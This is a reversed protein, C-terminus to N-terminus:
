LHFPLVQGMGMSTKQGIGSFFALESLHLIKDREALPLHSIDFEVKGTFGRLFINEKLLFAKSEIKYKSVQIGSMTKEELSIPEEIWKEWKRVLSKFVSEPLPFIVQEKGKKFSTPSIFKFSVKKRDLSPNQFVLMRALSHKGPTWIFRTQFTSNKVKLKFPLLDFLAEAASVDYFAIKFALASGKKISIEKINEQPEEGKEKVKWLNSLSFKKIEDNGHFLSSLFPHEKVTNCLASFLYYGNSKPIICDELAEIEIVISIPKVRM